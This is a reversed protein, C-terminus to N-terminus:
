AGAPVRRPASTAAPFKRMGGNVGPRDGCHRSDRLAIMPIIARWDQRGNAAPRINVRVVEVNEIDALMSRRPKKVFAGRERAMWRGGRNPLCLRM